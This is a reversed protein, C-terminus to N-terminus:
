ECGLRHMLNPLAYAGEIQAGTLYALGLHDAPCGSITAPDIGVFFTQLAATLTLIGAISGTSAGGQTGATVDDRRTRLLANARDVAVGAAIVNGITVASNNGLAIATTGGVASATATLSGDAIMEAFWGVGGTTTRGMLSRAGGENVTPRVINLALFSVLGPALVDASWGSADDSLSLGRWRRSAWKDYVAGTGTVLTLNANAVADRMSVSKDDCLFLGGSALSFGTQAEFIEPPPLFTPSPPRREGLVRWRASALVDDYWIDVADGPWLIFPLAGPCAFRNTATVAAGATTQIEEHGLAIPYASVNELTRREKATGAALSCLFAAGSASLRVHRTASAPTLLATEGAALAGPAVYSSEVLKGGNLVEALAGAGNRRVLTSALSETTAAEVDSLDVDEPSAFDYGFSSM